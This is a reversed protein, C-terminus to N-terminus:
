SAGVPEFTWSLNMGPKVGGVSTKMEQRHHAVDSHTGSDVDKVLILDVEGVDTIRCTGVAGKLPSRRRACHGDIHSQSRNM